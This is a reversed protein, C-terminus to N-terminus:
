GTLVSARVFHASRRLLGQSYPEDLNLDPVTQHRFWTMQRKVYQRTARQAAAVAAELPMEGRLHRLLEPVGLAKMAPLDPDLGRAALAAVEALAGAEIMRVFRAECAAYLEERAPMLLIMRFRYPSSPHLGQQWTGLATGTARVVEYARMLRQRDGPSLSRSSDADLQALRERFAIEGLRRYLDIAERRIPEPIEPVPALGKELARLYLGTGGVLIPLRGARTAAAIEELALTRWQAASGRETAALFGYLRHPAREEARADPRATLIYLDRYIQMSDANIVTGGFTAALELALASKGSATPGAIILVPPKHRAGTGSYSGPEHDDDEGQDGSCAAAGAQGAEGRRGGLSQTM